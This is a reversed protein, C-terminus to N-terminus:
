DHKDGDDDEKKGFRSRDRILRNVHAHIRAGLEALYTTMTLKRERLRQQMAQTKQLEAIKAGTWLQRYLNTEFDDIVGAERCSCLYKEVAMDDLEGPQQEGPVDDEIPVTPVRPARIARGVESNWLAAASDYKAVTRGTEWVSEWAALTHQDEGRGRLAGLFVSLQKVQHTSLQGSWDCPWLGISLLGALPANAVELTQIVLNRFPTWDTGSLRALRKPAAVIAAWVSLEEPLEIRAGGCDLYLPGRRIRMTRAPNGRSLDTPFGALRAKVDDFGDPVRVPRPMCNGGRVLTATDWGAGVDRRCLAAFLEHGKHWPNDRALHLRREMVMEFYVHAAEDPSLRDKVLAHGTLDASYVKSQPGREGSLMDHLDLYLKGCDLRMVAEEDPNLLGAVRAGFRTIIRRRSFSAPM